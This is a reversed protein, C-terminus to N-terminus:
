QKGEFKVRLREYTERETHEQREQIQRHYEEQRRKSEAAVDAHTVIGATIAIDSHCALPDFTVYYTLESENVNILSLTGDTFMVLCECWTAVVRAIAKGACLRFDVTTM